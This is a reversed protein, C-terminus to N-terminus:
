AFTNIFVALALLVAIVTNYLMARKLLERDNRHDINIHEMVLICVGVLAAATIVYSHLCLAFALMAIGAAAHVYSSLRLASIPGYKAPYTRLGNAKDFDVHVVSYMIDFGAGIFIISAMLIYLPLSTPFIGAAGIYGGAVDFSELIGISFHRHSTKRKLFPDVIFLLLVVPAMAFALMNLLYASALFISAFCLFMLLIMGKPIGLSPMRAKKLNKIDLDRGAYRNMLFASSRASFFAVTILLIKGEWSSGSLLMGVYVFSLNYVTFEFGFLEGVVRAIGDKEM